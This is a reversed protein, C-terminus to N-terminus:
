IQDEGMRGQINRKIIGSFFGVAIELTQLLGLGLWLGMCGGIDSLFLIFNFKQFYTDTVMLAQSFHLEIFGRGNKQEEQRFLRSEVHITSCPLPCDSKLIGNFLPSFDGLSDEYLFTTVNETNSVLWIPVIGPHLSSRLFSEDCDNYSEHQDTPYNVCNKSPDEEAFKNEKLTILFRM